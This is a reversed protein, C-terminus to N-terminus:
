KGEAYLFQFWPLQSAVTLKPNEATHAVVKVRCGASELVAADDTWNGPTRYAALLTALHFCQPTEVAYLLNRDVTDVITMGADTKKLTDTVARGPIAGGCERAAAMVAGLLGATAFPRAADHIAVYEVGAPLAALGARVSETRTAGGPVFTFPLDGLLREATDRFLDLEAEPAVMIRCGPAFQPGFAALSHLFLPMEGLMVLLKNDAGYRSGSGGGVVILAADKILMHTM